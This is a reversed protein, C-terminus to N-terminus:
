GVTIEEEPYSVLTKRRRNGFVIAMSIPGIRGLYMLIIIILKGPLHLCPTYDRSLGVTAIASTTEFAVDQMAGGECSYLLITSLFLVFLSVITVALAKKIISHPIQRHFAIVHEDGRITSRASLFLLSATTTKIGGATGISSGGIFMLFLCVAVTTPRLAHQSFTYFGATRTTVAEFLSALLKQPLTLKGITDPNNYEMVFILLAGGFILLATSALVLKTHLRLRHLSNRIPLKRAHIKHLLGGIDMWVIFGIGGMIILFMTVFNMWPNTLYDALSNGGLLDMGANCFASVANFLSLWLGKGLGYQPVFIFSYGLMGILEVIFTGKLIQRLFKVLGSLTNLNLSDELLLRDKLTIQRGIVMMVATTFSVIGLGGLQILILIVAQGFPSWYSATEKVTLGTVCISTTSTFLADVFSIQQGDAAAAPICLLGTGILIACFFGLAIIQTTSLEVNLHKM